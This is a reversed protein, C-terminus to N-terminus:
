QHGPLDTTDIHPAAEKPPEAPASPAAVSPTPAAATPAASAAPANGAETIRAQARTGYDSGTGVQDVIRRYLLLAGARNGAAWKQDASAIM